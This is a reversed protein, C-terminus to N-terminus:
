AQARDQIAATPEGSLAARRLAESRNPILGLRREEGDAEVVALAISDQHVDMGLYRTGKQM